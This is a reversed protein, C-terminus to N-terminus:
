GPFAALNAAVIRDFDAPKPPWGETMYKRFAERDPLLLAENTTREIGVTSHYREVLAHRKGFHAPFVETADGLKLIKDMLSDYLADPSGAGLDTRGCSGILLTDGTFIKDRFQLTLHDPTHGPTELVTLEENGFRLAEGEALSEHPYQAPSRRGLFIPAGTAHHLAAHGALHDAHTHTEVIGALRWNEERLLHLYPEPEAGPDIIVARREVPDGLFYALCGSARRPLQRFVYPSPALAYRGIEPSVDQAYGDIGGELRRINPFGSRLLLEAARAADPGFHDYVVIPRDKPLEALRKPLEALPIHREDRLRALRREDMPRVDVLLIPEAATRAQALEPGSIKTPAVDSPPRVFPHPLGSGDPAM